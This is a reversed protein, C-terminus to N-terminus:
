WSRGGRLRGPLDFAADDAANHGYCGANEVHDVRVSTPDLSLAGAIADRLAHIGQSHSWVHLSGDPDWEAMGCSPAISAHVLYPKSYSATHVQTVDGEDMVQTPESCQSRLWASLAGEDPLTDHEEWEAASALATLARDVDDERQGVVGLFSGDRVLEVGPASWDPHLAQLIAAPSPPRLV